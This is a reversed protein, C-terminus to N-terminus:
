QVSSFSLFIDDDTVMGGEGDGQGLACILYVAHIRPVCQKNHARARTYHLAGGDVSIYCAYMYVM